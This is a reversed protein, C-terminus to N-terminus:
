FSRELRFGTVYKVKGHPPVFQAVGEERQRYRGLPFENCPEFAMVYSEKSFKKWLDMKPLTSAHYFVCARLGLRHNKLGAVSIKNEDRELACYFVHPPYGDRKGSVVDLEKYMKKAVENKPVVSEFPLEMECGAELFPEGFNYHYMLCVQEDHEGVNEVEDEVMIKMQSDDYTIRRSLRLSKWKEFRNEMGGEVTVKGGEAYIRVNKAESLNMSGHLCCNGERGECPQGANELGCTSLLGFFFRSKRYENTEINEAPLLNEEVLYCLNVGQFSAYSIDMGRSLEITFSFGSDGRVVAYEMGEQGQKTRRKREVHVQNM